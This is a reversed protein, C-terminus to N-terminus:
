SICFTTNTFQRLFSINFEKAVEVKETDTVNLSSQFLSPVVLRVWPPTKLVCEKKPCIYVTNVTASEKGFPVVLANHVKICLEGVAIEKRCQGKCRAARSGGKRQFEFLQQSNFNIYKKFIESYNRGAPLKKIQM